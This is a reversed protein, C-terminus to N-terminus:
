GLDGDVYWWRDRMREFRSREHLIGRERGRRWHARFEVEGCDDGARGKETDVVDLRTWVLAEDLELRRPRTRPHWTAQLHREDRLVFATYRSRMLAEATEAPAGRLVPACCGGYTDGGCPCREHESRRAGAAAGFSM